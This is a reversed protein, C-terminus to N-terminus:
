ARKRRILVIAAAAAAVAALVVWVAIPTTDATKVTNVTKAATNTKSSSKSTTNAKTNDKKTTSSTNDKKTDATDDKKTDSPKDDKKDESPKDEKKPTITVKTFIEMTQGNGLDIIEKVYYTGVKVPAGGEASAGSNSADTKTATINGNEDAIYYEKAGEAANPYIAKLADLKSVSVKDDTEYDKEDYVKDEADISVRTVETGDKQKVVLSQSGDTETVTEVEYGEYHATFTMDGTAVVKSLQDQTIVTGATITTGDSLTVDKDCTWGSLYYGTNPAATPATVAAGNMLNQTTESLDGAPAGDENKFTIQAVLYGILMENNGSRGRVYGSKVTGESTRGHGVIYKTPNDSGSPTWSRTDDNWSFQGADINSYLKGDDSWPRVGEVSAVFCSGVVLDINTAKGNENELWVETDFSTYTVGHPQLTIYNLNSTDVTWQGTVEKGATNTVKVYIDYISGDVYKFANPLKVTASENDAMTVQGAESMTKGDNDGGVFVPTVDKTYLGSTFTFGGQFTTNTNDLQVYEGAASVETSVAMPLVLVAALLLALLKTTKRM